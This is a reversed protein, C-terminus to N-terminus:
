YFSDFFCDDIYEMADLDDAHNTLHISTNGNSYYLEWKLIVSDDNEDCASYWYIDGMCVDNTQSLKVKQQRILHFNQPISIMKSHGSMKTEGIVFDNM